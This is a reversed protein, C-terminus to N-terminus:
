ADFGEFEDAEQQAVELDSLIRKRIATFAHDKGLAFGYVKTDELHHDECMKMDRKGDEIVKDLSRLLGEFILEYTSSDIPNHKEM